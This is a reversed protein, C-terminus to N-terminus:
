QKKRKPQAEEGSVYPARDFADELRPDSTEKLIAMMRAALEERAKAFAPQDAVNHLQDPDSKLDYLEELPRKAFAYDYYPKWQPENRHAVLWAKTPSADMDPFAAYTNKELEQAPPEATDTVGKPSGLPWRDPAFNRIYLYEKTRLARQPYPLNGERAGAVHRERGTLVWTRDAEVQGSKESRLLPWLSRANMGEPKPAGAVELFTAALDPLWVLDDVVRGAKIGPGCALLGVGTGFDYLNCKGHTVGPMGHDGSVVVLTNKLEGREELVRLLEGVAADNAQAEGLYDALDERIEPVDPLFPPVKGKLSEPEIGWLAKGSGKVWMRHTNTPGYWFCFPAKGPRADLFATFNDRVEKLMKERAAQVSMGEGVMTTASESFKNIARGAKEYAYAQGGYPADAPTGPSWVKYAKGIHYGNDRLILPWSPIASDWVAGNLIAGLGTRYFYRGSLLASRCPTCSPSGVFANRFIVGERAVRDINPTKVVDNLSPRQDLAAYAGAYRGWDDAFCFLINLRDAAPAVQAALALVVVLLPFKM